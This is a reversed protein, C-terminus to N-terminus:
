ILSRMKLNLGARAVRERVALRDPFQEAICLRAKLYRRYEIDEFDVDKAVKLVRDYYKPLKCTVGRSVAVGDRAFDARFREFWARGIGPKLSMHCFEPTLVFVEGSVADVRQYWGAAENGTVKDVVYRAVYAASEFSVDGITSHGFPWLRELVVSRYLPFTGRKFIVKDAFSCNFLCAHFHPRGLAEGYEGCMFFRVKVHRFEKRLRKMFLQFDRYELSGGVPLSVDDYTLTIFCNEDYLKAEHVIRLAWQRSRELRCGICQGCAIYLDFPLPKGDGSGKGFSIPLGVASQFAGIPHYCPM